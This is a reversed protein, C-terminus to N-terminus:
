GREKCMKMVHLMVDAIVMPLEQKADVIPWAKKQQTKVTQELPSKSIGVTELHQGWLERYKEIVKQTFDLKGEYRELDTKQSQSRATQRYVSMKADLDLLINLDAQEMMEHVKMLWTPDLGDLSGYVYGSQWYRVLVMNDAEIIRRMVEMRNAVQLAQFALAGGGPDIAHDDPADPGDVVGEVRWRKALYNRIMPGTVCEDCPFSILDADIARAVAKGVTSKGCGDVGEIVVLM